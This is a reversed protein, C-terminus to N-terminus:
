TATVAGITFVKFMQSIGGSARCCTPREELTTFAEALKLM